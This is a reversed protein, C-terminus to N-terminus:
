PPLQFPPGQDDEYTGLLPPLEPFAPTEDDVQSFRAREHPAGTMAALREDVVTAPVTAQDVRVTQATAEAPAIYADPELAPEPPEYERVVTKRFARQSPVTLLEDDSTRKTLGRIIYANQLQRLGRLPISSTPVGVFLDRVADYTSQAAVISAHLEESIEELQRAVHTPNGVIAFERRHQFGTDGAVIKGSNVGIGIAFPRRNQSQWRTEMAKIVRMIDLAARLSREEQFQEDLLVGFVVYVTDGRLSEIMGRHRQAAQGVITYFENLYRLTEEPTLSESFLAFNRIRVCLITAYYQRAEFLRPDKRALLEEVVPAPVYRSFLAVVRSHEHRESVYRRFFVWAYVGAGAAAVVTIFLIAAM